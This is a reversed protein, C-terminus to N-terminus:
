ADTVEDKALEDKIWKVAGSFRDVTISAMNQKCNDLVLKRVRANGNILTELESLQNCDIYKPAPAPKGSAANGDDDEAPIGCIAMLSYRRLYTITSGLKQPNVEAPLLMKSDIFEGSVHLLRTCLIQTGNELVDMTQSISLGNKSFPERIADFVSALDAYNSKFFPNKASKKAGSMVGQAKCLATALNSIRVEKSKIDQTENTTIETM